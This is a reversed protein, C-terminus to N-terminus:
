QAVLPISSGLTPMTPCRMCSRQLACPYSIVHYFLLLAFRIFAQATVAITVPYVIHITQHMVACRLKCRSSYLNTCRTAHLRSPSVRQHIRYTGGSVHYGASRFASEWTDVACLLLHFKPKVTSKAKLDGVRALVAICEEVLWAAQSAEPSAAARLRIWVASQACARM